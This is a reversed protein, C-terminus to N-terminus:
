LHNTCTPVKCTWANVSISGRVSSFSALIRAELLKLQDQTMSATPIKVPLLDKEISVQRWLRNAMAAMTPHGVKFSDDNHFTLASNFPLLFRVLKELLGFGVHGTGGLLAQRPIARLPHLTDIETAGHQSESCFPLGLKRPTM